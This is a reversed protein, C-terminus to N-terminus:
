FTYRYARTDSAFPRDRLQQLDAKIHASCGSNRETHSKEILTSKPTYRGLLDSDTTKECREYDLGPYVNMIM